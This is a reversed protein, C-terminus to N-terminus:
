AADILDRRGRVRGGRVGVHLEGASMSANELMVPIDHGLTENQAAASSPPYTSVEVLGSATDGVQLRDGASRFWNRVAIEHTPVASHATLAGLPRMEVLVFGAVVMGVHCSFVVFRAVITSAMEQGVVDSHTATSSWPLTSTEVSGVSAEGLQTFRLM